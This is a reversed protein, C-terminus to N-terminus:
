KGLLKLGESVASAADIAYGDAGFQDAMERTVAGGGVMVKVKEKAGSEALTNIIGHQGMATATLLASLGLLNPKKEKVAEVFQDNTVDTGLDFVEFGSARFMTSVLSKGIDHIDGAVTGIVLKGQYKMTEGRRTIEEQLKQTARQMAEAGIVLEPLFLEGKGFAEGVERIGPILGEKIAKVPDMGSDVAQQALEDAKEPEGDLVAQKLGQFIDNEDM